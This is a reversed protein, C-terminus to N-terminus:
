KQAGKSNYEQVKKDKFQPQYEIPYKLYEDFLDEKYDDLKITITL